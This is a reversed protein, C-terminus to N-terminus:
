IGGAVLLFYYVYLNLAKSKFEEVLLKVGNLEDVHAVLNHVGLDISLLLQQGQDVSCDRM